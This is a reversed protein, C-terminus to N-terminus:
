RIPSNAQKMQAIECIYEEVEFVQCGVLVKYFFLFFLPTANKSFLSNKIPCSSFLPM